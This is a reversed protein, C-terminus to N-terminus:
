GSTQNSPRVPRSRRVRSRGAPIRARRPDDVLQPVDQRRQTSAKRVGRDEQAAIRPHRGRRDFGLEFGFVHIVHEADARIADELRAHRWENRRRLRAVLPAPSRHVDARAKPMARLRPGMMPPNEDLDVDGRRTEIDAEHDGITAAAGRIEDGPVVGTSGGLIPDLFEFEIDVGIAEATMTETRVGEAQLQVAERQQQERVKATRDQCARSQRRRGDARNAEVQELDRPADDPADSPEPKMERRMPGALREERATM